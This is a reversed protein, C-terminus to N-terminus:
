AGGDVLCSTLDSYREFANELEIHTRTGTQVLAALALVELVRHDPIVGMELSRLVEQGLSDLVVPLSERAEPSPNPAMYLCINAFGGKSLCAPIEERRPPWYSEQSARRTARQARYSAVEREEGSGGDGTATPPTPIGYPNGPKSPRAPAKWLM